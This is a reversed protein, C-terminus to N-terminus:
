TTSPPPVSPGTGVDINATLERVVLYALLGLSGSLMVMILYPVVRAGRQRADRIMWASVLFVAISLDAFLQIHGVDAFPLTWLALYGHVFIAWGSLASFGGFLMLLVLLRTHKM